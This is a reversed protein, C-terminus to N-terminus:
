PRGLARVQATAADTLWARRWSRHFALDAPVAGRIGCIASAFENARGLTLGLPWRHDGARREVVVRGTAALPDVQLGSTSMAFRSFEDRVQMGNQDRGIRTIMMPALGFAALNRAVNFPAGGVVQEDVFDDILAEGYVVM